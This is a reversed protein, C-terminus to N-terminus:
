KVKRGRKLLLREGRLVLELSIEANIGEWRLAQGENILKVNQRVDPSSQELEPYWALPVSISRGDSLTATIFKNNVNVGTMTTTERVKKKELGMGVWGIGAFTLFGTLTWWYWDDGSNYLWFTLYFFVLTWSAGFVALWVSNHEAGSAGYINNVQSAISSKVKELELKLDEGQLLELMELDTKLKSRPRIFYRRQFYAVVAVLLPTLVKLITVLTDQTDSSVGLIDRLM